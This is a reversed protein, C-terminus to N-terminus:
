TYVKWITTCLLIKKTEEPFDSELIIESKPYNEELSGIASEAMAVAGSNVPSYHMLFIKKYKSM